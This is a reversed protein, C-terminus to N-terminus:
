GASCYVFLIAYFYLMLTHVRSETHAHMAAQAATAAIYLQAAHRPVLVLSLQVNLLVLLWQVVATAGAGATSNAICTSILCMRLAFVCHACQSHVASAFTAILV